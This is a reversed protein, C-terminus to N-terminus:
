AGILGHATLDVQLARVREALQPLTITATDYATARNTNTGTFATYGTVRTGVVKTGAANYQTGVNVINEFSVNGTSRTIAQVTGLFAGNDAYRYINFDSGANAGAEATADGFQWEWRTSASTQSIIARKNGATASMTFNPQTKSITIDATFTNAVGLMAVTSSANPFTITNGDTGALTMTNSVTFTKGNVITLTASTAPATITVKNYSTASVTSFTALGATDVVIRNSTGTEDRLVWGGTSNIQMRWDRVTYTIGAITARSLKYTPTFDGVVNVSSILDINKAATKVRGDLYQISISEAGTGSLVPADADAPWGRFQVTTGPVHYNSVNVTGCVPHDILGNIASAAVGDIQIGYGTGLAERFCYPTNIYYGDGQTIIIGHGNKHRIWPSIINVGTVGTSGSGNMHIGNGTAGLTSIQEITIYEITGRGCPDAVVSGNDFRIATTLADIFRGGSVRMGQADTFRLLTGIMGQGDYSINHSEFGVVHASQNGIRFWDAGGGASGSYLFKVSGYTNKNIGGKGGKAKLVVCDKSITYNNAFKYIGPNFEITGGTTSSLAAIANALATDSTATGTPDAGFDLINLTDQTKSQWTRSAAGTDARVFATWTPDTGNSILAYGTTGLAVRENASAGRRILDGRTTTPSLADFAIAATTSELWNNVFTSPYNQAGTHDPFTSQLVTKLMRLHDDGYRVYDGAVPNTAVLDPIYSATELGM